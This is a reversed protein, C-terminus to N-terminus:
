EGETVLGARSRLRAVVAFRNRAKRLSSPNRPGSESLHAGASRNAKPRVEFNHQRPGSMRYQMIRKKKEGGGGLFFNGCPVDQTELVPM